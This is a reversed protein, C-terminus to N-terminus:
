RTRPPSPTWNNERPPPPYSNQGGRLVRFSVKLNNESIFPVSFRQCSQSEVKGGWSGSKAGPRFTSWLSNVNKWFIESNQEWEITPMLTVRIFYILYWLRIKLLITDKNQSIVLYGVLSLMKSATSLSVGLDTPLLSWYVIGYNYEEFVVGLMSVINPHRLQRHIDAEYKLSQIL